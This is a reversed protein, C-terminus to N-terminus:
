PSTPSMGAVLVRQLLDKNSASHMNSDYKTRGLLYEEESRGKLLKPGVLIPGPARKTGVGEGRVHDFETHPRLGMTHNPSKVGVTNM